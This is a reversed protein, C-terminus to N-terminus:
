GPAEERVPRFREISAVVADPEAGLGHLPIRIGHRRQFALELPRWIALRLDPLVGPLPDVILWDRREWLWRSRSRRIRHIEAWPLPRTFAIPLDLGAPGVRLVVPRQRLAWVLAGILGALFLVALSAWLPDNSGPDFGPGVLVALIVLAILAGSLGILAVLQREGQHFADTRERERSPDGAPERGRDM